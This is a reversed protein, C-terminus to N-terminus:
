KMWAWVRLGLMKWGPMVRFGYVVGDESAYCADFGFLWQRIRTMEGGGPIEQPEHIARLVADSQVM